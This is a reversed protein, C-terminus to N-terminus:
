TRAGVSSSLVHPTTVGARHKSVIRCSIMGCTSNPQYCTPGRHPERKCPFRSIAEVEPGPLPGDPSRKWPIACRVICSAGTLDGHWASGWLVIEVGEAVFCAARTATLIDAETRDRVLTHSSLCVALWGPDM